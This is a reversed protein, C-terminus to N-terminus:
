SVYLIHAKAKVAEFPEVSGLRCALVLQVDFKM